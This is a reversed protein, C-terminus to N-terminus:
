NNTYELDYVELEFWTFSGEELEWTIRAKAPVSYGNVMHYSNPDISIIWPELTAKGARSYYRLAKFGTVAGEKSFSFTGSATIGGYSMTAKASNDDVSTWKIYPAMAVTPYWIMEAMYRLLAGQDIEPGKSDAVPFLSLLKILMHGQGEVYEHNIEELTNQNRGIIISPENIYFLPYDQGYDFNRLAYEELALNLHPDTNGENHIFIM